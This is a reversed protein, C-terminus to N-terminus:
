RNEQGIWFEQETSAERGANRDRVVLRVVYRGAPANDLTVRFHEPLLDRAEVRAQREFRIQAADTGLRSLGWRDAIAGVITGLTGRRHIEDVSVTLDLEYAAFQESDPLLNYIEFYFAVDGSREFVRAPNPQVRFDARRQPNEVLPEVRDALLMDSLSLQGAPFAKPPVRTRGVAAGWSVADRAEVGVLHMRGQRLGIRWSEVLPQAGPGVAPEIQRTERTVEIAAENQVFLGLEVAGASRPQEAIRDLPVAAHIEADMQGGPGRFRVVQVPMLVRIPLTPTDFSVPQRERYREVYTRFDGAFTAGRFGPNQRFLFVPGNQAYAWVTLMQGPHDSALDLTPPFTALRAPRGYRVWISGRDTEWGRVGYEPIRYRMEAYTMRALYELWFENTVSLYLPNTERWFRREYEARTTDDMGLYDGADSSALLRSISEIQRREQEPMLELAYAFAGAAPEIDGALYLGLGLALYAEPAAPSYRVFRRATELYQASDEADYQYALLLMTAGIHTPDSSLAARLHRLMAERDDAGQETSPAATMDFLEWIYRADSFAMRTDVQLRNVPLTRRDRFRLWQTERFIALQYHIEALTVADTRAASNLARTFMRQADVRMQQKLMLKGFELLYLPNDPDLRLAAGLSAEAQLRDEFQFRESSARIAFLQGRRFHAEASRPDTRIIQDIRQLAAATDGRAALEVAERLEATVAVQAQARGAPAAAAVALGSALLLAPLRPSSWM